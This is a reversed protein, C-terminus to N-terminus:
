TKGAAPPRALQAGAFCAGDTEHFSDDDSSFTSKKPRVREGVKQSGKTRKSNIKRNNEEIIEDEPAEIDELAFLNEEMLKEVTGSSKLRASKRM